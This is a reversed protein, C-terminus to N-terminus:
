NLSFPIHPIIKGALDARKPLRVSVIGNESRVDIEGAEILESNIDIRRRFPALQYERNWERTEFASHFGDDNKRYQFILRGKEFRVDLDRVDLGPAVLEIVFADLLETVNLAPLPGFQLPMMRKAAQWGDKTLFDDFYLPTHTFQRTTMAKHKKVPSRSPNAPTKFFIRVGKGVRQKIQLRYEV